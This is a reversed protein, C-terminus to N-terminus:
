IEGMWFEVKKDNPDVEHILEIEEKEASYMRTIVQTNEFRLDNMNEFVKSLHPRM